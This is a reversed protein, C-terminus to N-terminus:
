RHDGGNAPKDFREIRNGGVIRVDVAVDREDGRAHGALHHANQHIVVIAHVLAIQQHLEVLLRVLHLHVDGLRRDIGRLGIEDGGCACARPM